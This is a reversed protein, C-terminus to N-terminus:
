GSSVSARSGMAWQIVGVLFGVGHASHQLAIMPPIILLARIDKIRFLAQLGGIFLIVAYGCVLFTSVHLPEDFFFSLGALALAAVVGLFPIMHGMQLLGSHKRALAVRGHGIAYIKRLHARLSPRRKHWVYADPAFRILYGAKEVRYALEIEEGPFLDEDFLGVQALVDRRIAMNCSRPYYKGLRLSDRARLGGTGIFSTLLYDACKSFFLSGEPARDPGGVMGVEGSDFAALLLSLWERQFLCDDDTFVLIEGGAMKIGSNRAASAGRHEKQKLYRIPTPAASQLTAMVRETEDTSGDDVVVIEYWGEPFDLHSLSILAERLSSARNYTPIIVSVKSRPDRM